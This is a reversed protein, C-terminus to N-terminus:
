DAHLIGSAHKGSGRAELARLSFQYKGARSLRAVPPTYLRVLKDTGAPLSRVMVRAPRGQVTRNAGAAHPGCALPGLYFSPKKAGTGLSGIRQAHPQSVKRKLHSHQGTGTRALGRGLGVHTIGNLRQRGDGSSFGASRGGWAMGADIPAQRDGPRIGAPKHCGLAQRLRLLRRQRPARQVRWRRM